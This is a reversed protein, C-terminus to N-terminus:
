TKGAKKGITVGKKLTAGWGCSPCGKTVLMGKEACNGCNPCKAEAAKELNRWGPANLNTDSPFMLGYKAATEFSAIAARIKIGLLEVDAVSVTIDADIVVGKDLVREIVDALGTPQQPTVVPM